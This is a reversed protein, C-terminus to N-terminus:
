NGTEIERIKEIKKLKRRMMTIVIIIILILLIILGIMVKMLTSMRKVSVSKENLDKATQSKISFDENWEWEGYDSSVKIHATYDGAQYNDQGMLIYHDFTSNPAFSMGKLEDKYLSKDEGKKTVNVEYFADPLINYVPNNLSVKLANRGGTLEPTVSKFTLNADINKESEVLIVPVTYSFANRIMEKSKEDPKQEIYLGGLIIGDFPEKPTKFSVKLTKKEHSKLEFEEHYDAIKELSVKDNIVKKDSAYNISGQNNTAADKIAAEMKIPEKSENTVDVSFSVDTNPKVKLKFDTESDDMKEKSQILKPTFQLKNENAQTSEISMTCFAVSMVTVLITKIKKM